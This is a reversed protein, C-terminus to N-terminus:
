LERIAIHNDISSIGKNYTAIATGDEFEFIICENHYHKIGKIKKGIFKEYHKEDRQFDYM